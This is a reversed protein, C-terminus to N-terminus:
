SHLQIYSRVVDSVDLEYERAITKMLKRFKRERNTRLARLKGARGLLFIALAVNLPNLSLLKQNLCIERSIDWFVSGLRRFVKADYDIILAGIVSIFNHVKLNFGMMTCIEREMKRVYYNGTDFVALNISRYGHHFDENYKAVLVTVVHALENSYVQPVLEDMFTKPNRASLIVDTIRGELGMDSEKGEAILQEKKMLLQEERTLEIFPERPGSFAVFYDGLQVSGVITDYGHESLYGLEFIIKVFQDRSIPIPLRPTDRAYM